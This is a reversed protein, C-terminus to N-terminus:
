YSGSSGDFACEVLMGPKGGITIDFFVFHESMRSFNYLILFSLVLFSLLCYNLCLM